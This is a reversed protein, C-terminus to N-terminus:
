WIKVVKSPQSYWDRYVLLMKPQSGLLSWFYQLCVAKKKKYGLNKKDLDVLFAWQSVPNFYDLTGLYMCNCASIFAALCIDNSQIGWTIELFIKKWTLAGYMALSLVFDVLLYSPMFLFLLLSLVSCGSSELTVHSKGSRLTVL